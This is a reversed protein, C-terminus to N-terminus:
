SENKWTRTGGDCTAASDGGGSWGGATKGSGVAGEGMSVVRGVDVGMATAMGDTLMGGTGSGVM